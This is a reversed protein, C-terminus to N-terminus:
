SSPLLTRDRWNWVPAAVAPSDSEPLCLRCGFTPSRRPSIANERLAALLADKGGNDGQHGRSGTVGGSFVLKGSPAFVQVHGSTVAGFKEAEYGGPDIWLPSGPWRSLREIQETEVWERDFEAPVTAVALVLPRSAAPLTELSEELESISALTCPCRPHVFFLATPRADARPLTSDSPWSVLTKAPPEVQFSYATMSWWFLCFAAGWCAISLSLRWRFPSSPPPSSASM